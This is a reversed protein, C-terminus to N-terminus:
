LTRDCYSLCTIEQSLDTLRTDTSAGLGQQVAYALPLLDGQGPLPHGPGLCLKGPAGVGAGTLCDLPLSLRKGSTGPLM